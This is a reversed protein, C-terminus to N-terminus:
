HIHLTYTIFVFINVISLRIVKQLVEKPERVANAYFRKFIDAAIARYEIEIQSCIINYLDRVIGGKVKLMAKYNKEEASVMAIAEGAKVQVKWSAVSGIGENEM